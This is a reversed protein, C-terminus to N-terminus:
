VAKLSFRNGEDSLDLRREINIHHYGEGWKGTLDYNVLRWVCQSAVDINRCFYSIVIKSSRKGRRPTTCLILYAEWGDNHFVIDSGLHSQLSLGNEICSAIISREGISAGKAYIVKSRM